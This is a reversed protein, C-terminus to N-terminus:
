PHCIEALLATWTKVWCKREKKRDGISYALAPGYPIGIYTYLLVVEPMRDVHMGNNVKVPSSSVV